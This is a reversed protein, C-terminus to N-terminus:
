RRHAASTSPPANRAPTPPPQSSRSDSRSKPCSVTCPAGISTLLPTPQRRRDAAWGGLVEYCDRQYDFLTYVTDPPVIDILHYPVPPSVAAYEDLDKGTGLDLGLYVQRSDASVIESSLRHALEVGLRTKGTATPGTIVILRLTM